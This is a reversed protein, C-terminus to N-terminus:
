QRASLAKQGSTSITSPNKRILLFSLKKAGAAPLPKTQVMRGTAQRLERLFGRRVQDYPSEVTQIKKQIDNWNPM